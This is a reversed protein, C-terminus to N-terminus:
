IQIDFRINSNKGCTSPFPLLSFYASKVLKLGQQSEGGQDDNEHPAARRRNGRERGRRTPEGEGCSVAAIM